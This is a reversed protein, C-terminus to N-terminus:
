LCLLKGRPCIRAKMKWLSGRKGTCANFHFHVFFLHLWSQDIFNVISCSQSRNQLYTDRALILSQKKDVMWKFNMTDHIM